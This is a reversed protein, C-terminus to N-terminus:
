EINYEHSDFSVISILLKEGQVDKAFTNGSIFEFFIMQCDPTSILDDISFSGDDELVIVRKEFPLDGFREEDEQSYDFLEYHLAVKESTNNPDPTWMLTHSDMTSITSEGTSSLRSVIAQNPFYRTEDLLVGGSHILRIQVQKGYYQNLNVGSYLFGKGDLENPIFVNGNLELSVGSLPLKGSLILDSGRDTSHVGFSSNDYISLEFDPNVIADYMRELEPNVEGEVDTNQILAWSVVSENVDEIKQECSLLLFGALVLVLNKM